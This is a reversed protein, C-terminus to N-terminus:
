HTDQPCLSHSVHSVHTVHTVDGAGLSSHPLAAREPSLGSFCLATPLVWRHGTQYSCRNSRSHRHPLAPALPRRQAPVAPHGCSGWGMAAQGARLRAPDRGPDQGSRPMDAVCAGSVWSGSSAPVHGSSTGERLSISCSSLM